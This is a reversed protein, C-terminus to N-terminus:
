GPRRLTPVPFESGLLFSSVTRLRFSIIMFNSIWAKNTYVSLNQHLDILPLM